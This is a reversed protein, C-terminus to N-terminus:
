DGLGLVWGTSITRILAVVIQIVMFAQTKGTDRLVPGFHMKANKTM